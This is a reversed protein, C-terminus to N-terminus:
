HITPCDLLLNVSSTPDNGVASCTSSCLVVHQPVSPDDYYWADGSAPCASANAVNPIEASSGGVTLEVNILAADPLNGNVRPIGYACGLAQVRITNMAALMADGVNTSTDIIHASTTGGALAIGDLTSLSSGVGIVFTKISPSGSLGAAAIAQIDALNTDCETPDGDTALVDVVTHGTHAQAWASAHDIAGQLAASTPTSTSPGHAAISTGIPTANGPLPAIEVAPTAYDSATCSDGGGCGSCADGNGFCFGGGAECNNVDTTTNCVSPCSSSAAPLAFFQLGLSIGQSSQQQLFTQLGSTVAEWKTTGNATQDSMSGSQDLMLYIDVPAQTPTVSSSSCAGTTGTTTGNTSSGNTTGGTSGSTGGTNTTTTVGGTSSSAQSTSTTGNSGGTSSATASTGTSGSSAGTGSAGTSGSGNGSGNAGSNNGSGNAASTGFQCQGLLASCHQGASCANCSEGNVGCSADSPAQCKGDTDCCGGCSTADCKSGCGSLSIAALLAATSLFFRARM